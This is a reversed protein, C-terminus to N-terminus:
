YNITENESCGLLLSNSTRTRGSWCIRRKVHFEVRRAAPQPLFGCHWCAEGAVCVVGCNKCEILRSGREGRKRHVPSEARRDPDLTWEVPDEVFGHLFVAGSHDQV